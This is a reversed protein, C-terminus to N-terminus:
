NKEQCIKWKIEKYNVKYKIKYKITLSNVM